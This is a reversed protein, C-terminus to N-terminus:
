WLQLLIVPAIGTVRRWPGSLVVLGMGKPDLCSGEVSPLGPMKEFIGALSIILCEGKCNWYSFIFGATPPPLSYPLWSSCNAAATWYQTILSTCCLSRSVMIPVIVRLFLLQHWATIDPVLLVFSDFLVWPAETRLVQPSRINCNVYSSLLFLRLFNPKSM